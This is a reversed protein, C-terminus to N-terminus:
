VCEVCVREVNKVNYKGKNNLMYLYFGTMRELLFSYARRQYVDKRMLDIENNRLMKVCVDICKQMFTMYDFFVEKPMVFMNNNHFHTRKMFHKWSDKEFKTELVDEDLHKSFVDLDEKVHGESYQEYISKGLKVDHALVTKGDLDSESWEIFRRYHNVGIFDPNGIEDYHKWAWYFVSIENIYPNLKSINDGTDDGKMSLLVPSDGRYLAKGGFIPIYIDKDSIREDIEGDKHFICLIKIKSHMNETMNEQEAIEESM